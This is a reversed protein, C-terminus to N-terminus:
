STWRDERGAALSREAKGPGPARPRWVAASNETTTRAARRDAM